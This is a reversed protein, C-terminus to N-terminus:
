ALGPSQSVGWCYLGRMMDSWGDGRREGATSSGRWEWGGVAQTGPVLIYPGRCLVAELLVDRRQWRFYSTRSERVEEGDLDWCCFDRWM